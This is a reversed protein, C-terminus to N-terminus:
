DFKVLAAGTRDSRACDAGERAFTFLKGVVLFCLLEARAEDDFTKVASM